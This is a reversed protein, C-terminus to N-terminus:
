RPHDQAPSGVRADQVPGHRGDASADVVEDAGHGPLGATADAAPDEEAADLQTAVGLPDEAARQDPDSTM